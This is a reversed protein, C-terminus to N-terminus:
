GVSRLVVVVRGGLGWAGATLATQVEALSKLEQKLVRALSTDLVAM